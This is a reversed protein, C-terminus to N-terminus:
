KYNQEVWIQIARIECSTLPVSGYPPMPKTTNGPRIVELLKGTMGVSKVNDYGSLQIDGSPLTGSHCGLCNKSIINQIQNNWTVNLTDCAPTCKLNKAGQAIWTYIIAKQFSDLPEHPAPPMFKKPNPTFLNLYMSSAMPNGPNVKGTTRTLDFSSYDVGEKPNAGMHCGSIACNSKLIPLVDKEFYVTDPSCPDKIPIITDNSLTDTTNIGKLVEPEHKCGTYFLTITLWILAIFGAFKM